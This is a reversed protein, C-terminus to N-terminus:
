FPLDDDVAAVPAASEAHASANSSPTWEIKWASLSNYWRGNYERARSNLSAIIIDWEAYGDILSTKEGWLDFVLWGKYESDRNEELVISCKDTNNQGVQEIPLIKVIKWEYQM